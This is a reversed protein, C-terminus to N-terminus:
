CLGVKEELETTHQKVAVLETTLVAERHLAKRLEMRKQELELSVDACMTKATAFEELISIGVLSHDLDTQTATSTLKPRPYCETM